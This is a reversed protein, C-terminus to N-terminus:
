EGFQDTSADFGYPNDLNDEDAFTGDQRGLM